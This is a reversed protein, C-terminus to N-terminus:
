KSCNKNRARQQRWLSLCVCVLACVWLCVCVCCTIVDGHYGATEGARARTRDKDLGVRGQLLKCIQPLMGLVPDLGGVVDKLRGLQEAVRQRHQLYSRECSGETAYRIIRAPGFTQLYVQATTKRRTEAASDQHQANDRGSERGEKDSNGRCNRQSSSWQSASLCWHRCFSPSAWCSRHTLM